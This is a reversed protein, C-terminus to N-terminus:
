QELNAELTEAFSEGSAQGLRSLLEIKEPGVGLLFEEGRVAVLYLAKKPGLYRTELIKIAGGKAAPFLGPKKRAWAYLVLVIGLVVVLAGMTKLGATLLGDGGNEAALATTPCFLMTLTLLKTM